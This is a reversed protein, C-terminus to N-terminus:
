GAETNLLVLDAGLKSGALLAEVFGRHNRAMIGLGVGPGAGCDALGAALTDTRRHLEAYTLEDGEDVVAAQDPCRLAAVAVGAAPTTGWRRVLLGARLFHDPRFPRFLGARALARLPNM